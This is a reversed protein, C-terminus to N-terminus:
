QRERRRDRCREIAADLLEQARAVRRDPDAAHRVIVIPRDILAAGAAFQRRIVGRFPPGALADDLTEVDGADLDELSGEDGHEVAVLGILTRPGSALLELPLRVRGRASREPTGALGHAAAIEAPVMAQRRVARVTDLHPHVLSLDDGLLDWGGVFAAAALTSKGVGSRGVLLLAEDGRAIVAGHVLIRDPTALAAAVGFQLLDDLQDEQPATDIPGGIQVSRDGIRVAADDRGIWIEGDVEAGDYGEVRQAVAGAPPRPTEVSLEITVDPPATAVEQGLRSLACRAHAETAARVRVAVGAVDLHLEDPAPPM